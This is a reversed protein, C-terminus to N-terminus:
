EKKTQRVKLTKEVERCAGEAVVALPAGADIITFPVFSSAADENWSRCEKIRILIDEESDGRRTLRERVLAEDAIRLYLSFLKDDMLMSKLYAALTETAPITLIAVMLPEKLAREIADKTTGYRNGHVAVSWLFAGKKELRDFEAGLVYRYEGPIDSPRPARTTVSGLIRAKPFTTLVARAITTKGSASPGSISVIM